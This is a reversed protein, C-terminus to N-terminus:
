TMWSDVFLPADHVVKLSPTEDFAVAVTVPRVFPVEYTNRTAATLETPVPEYETLEADTAGREAGAAGVLRATVGPFPDNDTDHVADDLPPETM